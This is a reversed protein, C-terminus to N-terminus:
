KTPPLIITWVQKITSRNVGNATDGSRITPLVQGACLAPFIEQQAGGSELHGKLPPACWV